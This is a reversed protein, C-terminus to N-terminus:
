QKSTKKEAENELVHTPNSQLKDLTAKNDTSTKAGSDGSAPPDRQQAGTQREPDPSQRGQNPASM